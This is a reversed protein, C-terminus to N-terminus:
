VSGVPLRSAVASWVQEALEQPPRDADLV